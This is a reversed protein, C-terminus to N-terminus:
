LCRGSERAEVKELRLIRESGSNIGLAYVFSKESRDLSLSDGLNLTDLLM